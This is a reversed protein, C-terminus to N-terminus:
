PTLCWVAHAVIGCIDSGGFSKWCISFGAATWLGLYQGQVHTLLDSTHAYEMEYIHSYTMTKRTDEKENIHRSRGAPIVM